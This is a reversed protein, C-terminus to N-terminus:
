KKLGQKQWKKDSKESWLVGKEKVPELNIGGYAERDIEFLFNIKSNCGEIGYEWIEAYM